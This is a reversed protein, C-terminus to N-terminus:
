IMVCDHVILVPELNSCVYKDFDLVADVGFNHHLHWPKSFFRSKAHFKLVDHQGSETEVIKALATASTNPVCFSRDEDEKKKRYAFFNWTLFSLTAKVCIWNNETLVVSM